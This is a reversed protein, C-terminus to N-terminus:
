LPLGHSVLRWCFLPRAHSGEEQRIRAERAVLALCWRLVCKQVCGRLFAWELAQWGWRCLGEGAGAIGAEVWGEGRCGELGAM